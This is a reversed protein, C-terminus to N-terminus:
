QRLAWFTEPIVIVSAVRSFKVSNSSCPRIIGIVSFANIAFGCLVPKHPVGIGLPPQDANQCLGWFQNPCPRIRIRSKENEFWGSFVPSLLVIQHVSTTPRPM